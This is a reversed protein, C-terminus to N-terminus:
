QNYTKAATLTINLREKWFSIEYNSLQGQFDKLFTEVKSKFIGVSKSVDMNSGMGTYVYTRSEWLADIEKSLQESLEVQQSARTCPKLEFKGPIRWVSETEDLDTMSQDESYRSADVESETDDHDSPEPEDNIRRHVKKWESSEYENVGRRKEKELVKEMRDLLIDHPVQSYTAEEGVLYCDILESRREPPMYQSRQYIFKTNDVIVDNELYPHEEAFEKTM